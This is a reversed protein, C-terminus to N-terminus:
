RVPAPEPVKLGAARLADLVCQAPVASPLLDMGCALAAWTGAAQGMAAANGTVRYSSHAFFDGSVCRGALLLGEADSPLLCRLPMGYPRSRIPPNEQWSNGPQPTTAHVDVHFSCTAFSDAPFRGHVLDDLEMRARGRIRRGERVGIHEPTAVLRLDRWIGGSRRLAAVLAHVEQRAALTAASVAHADSSDVGYQHDAVLMYLDDHLHMLVGTYSPTFGAAACARAIPIRPGTAEGSLYPRIAAPDVGTILFPMSMPQPIGTQPHGREFGCGALMALDGDGTADIGVQVQWAERGSKSETVVHSLRSGSQQVGVLRTHLRVRVGAARCLDELLFKMVEPDYAYNGQPHGRDSRGGRRQLEASIEAMIGGKNVADIIWCLLRARDLDRGLL